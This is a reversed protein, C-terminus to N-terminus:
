IRQMTVFVSHSDFNIHYVMLIDSDDEYPEVAQATISKENLMEGDMVFKSNDTHKLQITDDPTWLGSADLCVEWSESACTTRVIRPELRRTAELKDEPSYCLGTLITYYLM